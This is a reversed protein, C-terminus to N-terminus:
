LGMGWRALETPFSGYGLLESHFQSLSFDAGKRARAADRLRLIDRRGTAYCLQYTPYACYRRAEAWASGEDLGLQEQLTTAAKGVTMDRTHLAVDLNVRIARWLLHYLQFFRVDPSALFGEETMLSECYMAWGEQAQPTTLIRRVPRSLRNATLLQLHHGPFGEHLATIALEARNHPRNTEGARATTVFFTGTQEADYAGPGIYAAVPILSRLFEPTETVHLTGAPVQALKRDVVFSRASLILSSYEAVITESAPADQRLRSALDRWDTGPSIEKAVQALALETSAQLLEGFRYLEDANERIMHATHLKLDFTDRGIAFGPQAREAALRLWDRYESVADIAAIRADNWEQSAVGSPDVDAREIGERLLSLAGPIMTLAMETLVACPATLVEAATRLFSPIARLRNVLGRAREGPERDRAVLVWIGTLAHALHQAPNRAFSREQELVLLDHRIAHLAATRDIEDQLSPADSEELSLSCSRLAAIHDRMAERDYRALLGDFQRLGAISAAVPNMQWRLDLYEQIIETFRPTM